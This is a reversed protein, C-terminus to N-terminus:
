RRMFHTTKRPPIAGMAGAVRFHELQNLSVPLNRAQKLRLHWYRLCQVTTKLQPSWHYTTTVRKSLNNEATLMSSTITGDLSENWANSSM